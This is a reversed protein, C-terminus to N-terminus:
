SGFPNRMEAVNLWKGNSKRWVSVYKGVEMEQGPMQSKYLGFAWAMDKSASVHAEVPEYTLYFNHTKLFETFMAIQQERGYLIDGGDLFLLGHEDLIREGLEELKREALLWCAERELAMIEEAEPTPAYMGSRAQESGQVECLANTVQQSWDQAFASQTTIALMVLATHVISKM